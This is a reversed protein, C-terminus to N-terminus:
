LLTETRVGNQQITGNRHCGEDGHVILIPFYLADQYSPPEELSRNESTLSENDVQGSLSRFICGHRSSQLRGLSFRSRSFPLRSSVSRSSRSPLSSSSISRRCRQCNQMYTMYGLSSLTADMLMAESYSPVIQQNSRIHWELETIDITNVRSIRHSYGTEEPTLVGDELGFLKEVHYHVNATRYEAIVRLPWSVMFISAVWFICRRVYWPPHSPDPFAIMHEKFDVNKLHMGERAEMYDDLGENESFFRARQTLYSNEADSSAFSFCKTFRLKTAPYDSLGLLEKSIDKAGHRSYDFESEAMHTNVREHYVQTTTYADGNRYRTVQRTRRIYHYNIAKWWICPTSQQMRQIREYVSSIDVKHQAENKAYCHWCEMLYVVYLMALFALPIYIYGNSCPSDHYIKIEGKFPSSGKLTLRSVKFLHCWGVVGFCGYMLLTLVLCKWHSERCLSGSLSQKLPRQQLLSASDANTPSRPAGLHRRSVARINQLDPLIEPIPM